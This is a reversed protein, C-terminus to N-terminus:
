SGAAAITRVDGAGERVVDVAVELLHGAGGGFVVGKLPSVDSYDRGWATTVYTEGVLADNTPDFDLWGYGPVLVALWAHSADAGVLRDTGEPPTTELYGSVYRAALGRTRLCGVALHAFDQCVGRRHVLVDDVPTTVTTVGPDFGFQAHIRGALDVVAEVVPRGAAFSPAAFAAVESGPDVLPSPLCFERAAVLEPDRSTALRDRVEEWAPGRPPAAPGDVAVTSSATVTLEDLPGDVAFAVVPNGFYDARESWTAPEPRVALEHTLCRQTGTDRPRLHAENRSRSVPGGYRYTTRHEVRYIV